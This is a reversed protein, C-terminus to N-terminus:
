TITVTALLTWAAGSAKTGLTQVKRNLMTPTTGVSAIANAATVTGSAVVGWCWEEWAFNAEGTAFTSSCQIQGPTAINPAGDLGRYWAGATQGQLNTQAAAFATTSNGVGCFGLVSTLAGGGGGTILTTIRTRGVTVLNNGSSYAFDDARIGLREFDAYKPEFGLKQQAWAVTDPEYKHIVVEPKWLVSDARLIGSNISAM